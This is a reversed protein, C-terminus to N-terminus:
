ELFSGRPAFREGFREALTEMRRRVEAKGLRRVYTFPGESIGLIQNLCWEMDEETGAGLDRARYADLIMGYWLRDLIDQPSYPGPDGARGFIVPLDPADHPHGDEYLYCGAGTKVGLRGFVNLWPLIVPMYDGPRKEHPFRMEGSLAVDTGIQDVSEVPGRVTMKGRVLADIESAKYYGEGLIHLGETYFPTILRNVLFGVVQKGVLLPRKGVAELLQSLEAVVRQETGEHPIIEVFPVFKAPFFFHLGAFREPHPAADALERPITYSSNSTLITDPRVIAGVRAFVDRKIPVQEAVSESILDVDALAELDTTVRLRDLQARAAEGRKGDKQARRRIPGLLEENLADAADQRRVWLTVDYEKSFLGFIDAGMHGGGVIGIKRIM